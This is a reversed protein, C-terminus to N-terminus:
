SGKAILGAMRSAGTQRRWLVVGALVILGLTTLLIVTSMANVSPTIGTRMQSWIMVPLTSNAGIVFNTIIFEDVSLAFVLIGAGILTPSILPLTVTRLVKAPRAGLDRAAEEIQLDFDNLRARMVLVVFPLTFLIHALTTIVLGPQFGIVSVASILAVGIVVGPVAIPGIILGLLVPKSLFRRRVLAFAAPTAILLSGVVTVAAIGISTRLSRGFTPSALLEEYWRLTLGKIPFVGSPTANFSFVLVILLPAYLFALIAITGAEPLWLRRLRRSRVRRRRGGMATVRRLIPIACRRLLVLLLLVAAFGIMLGISLAAGFPPNGALGYQDAIVRGVLMGSKGGVLQPTVYDAAALIFCFIFATVVGTMSQPLLVRWFTGASTAGLDRSAELTQRDINQMASYIPLVAYPVLIHTLTVILAFDGYLLFTLPESILDLSLLLQNIVGQPGLITKWAYIRVLYSSLMSLMVLVLIARGSRPFRFTVAFAVLYSLPVCIAAVVLGIVLSRVILNLYLAQDVIRVYNELTFEHSVAFFSAKWFSYIAMVSVPALLVIVLFLAIPIAPGPLM